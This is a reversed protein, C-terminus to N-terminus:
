VKLGRGSYKAQDRGDQTVQNPRLRNRHAGAANACCGLLVADPTPSTDAAVGQATGSRGVGWATARPRSWVKAPRAEPHSFVPGPLM